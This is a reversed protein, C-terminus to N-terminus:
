ITRQIIRTKGINAVGRTPTFRHIPYGVGDTNHTLEKLKGPNLIFEAGPKWTVREFDYILKPCNIKHVWMNVEGLANKCRSNVANVRDKIPPNSEPTEDRFSIKADKLVSKVIDYDSQNSSRQTAKGTADGCLIVSPEGRHGLQKLVLLRDRLEVAAEMTHSNVLHIEDFWWWRDANLQGLTWAMPSLNFDLALTIPDYPSFLKGPMWPCEDTKNHDGFLMYARGSTLDRFEAGIEQAFEPESMTSKASAIEDPSWWWAEWSPAKVIDWEPLNKADQALDYFWDYGNPTSYFDCWGKRRGLMPRVVQTWLRKDQQRCEDIICGDLTEVRLDDFNQGSKFQVQRGGSLFVTKESENPKKAWLYKWSERPFLKVYRNFAVEAATHTQLIYWYMGNSRGAMPRRFMTWTGNTTKGSQRGWVGIKFRASSAQILKQPPTRRPLSMNLTVQSM